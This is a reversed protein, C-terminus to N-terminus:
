DHNDWQECGYGWGDTNVLMGVVGRSIGLLMGGGGIFFPPRSSPPGSVGGGRKEAYAFMLVLDTQLIKRTKEHFSLPPLPYVVDWRM